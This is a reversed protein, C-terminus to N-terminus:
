KRGVTFIAEASLDAGGAPFRRRVADLLPNVVSSWGADGLKKKMAAFPAGSRVIMELYQEASEVRVSATFLHSDVDRFGGETMERICEEREQLDGKQPRPFQPLAEAMAEFGIKMIPRREIPSWTAILARGGPRLVRLMEGFVRARDTFFFFGFMCFAADFTADPFALEHADMVAGEVNKVGDRAARARVEDIM